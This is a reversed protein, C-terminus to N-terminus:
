EYPLNQDLWKVRCTLWSKLHDIEAAYSDSHMNYLLSEPITRSSEEFFPWRAFNKIQANNLQKVSEDIKVELRGIDLEQKRFESWRAIARSRFMPIEFLDSSFLRHRTGWGGCGKADREGNRGWRDDGFTFKLDWMPGAFMKSDRDKYFFVSALFADSNQLLEQFIWYDVFSDLDILEFVKDSRAIVLSQVEEFYQVIWDQQAKNIRRIKPYKITWVRSSMDKDTNNLMKRSFEGANVKSDQTIEILYGGHIDPTEEHHRRLKSIPVLDKNRKIKQSLLYVGKYDLTEDIGNVDVVLEVLRTRPSKIGMASALSYGFHNRVLSKDSYPGHLVWDSGKPLGLLSVPKDQFKKNRVEIGYQKKLFRNSSQGRYEVGIRYKKEADSGPNITLLGPVKDVEEIEKTLASIKLVPLQGPLSELAEIDSIVGLEQSEKSVKGTYGVSKVSIAYFGPKNVGEPSFCNTYQKIQQGQFSVLYYFDLPRRKWCWRLEAGHDSSAIKTRKHPKDLSDKIGYVCVIIALTVIIYKSTRSM